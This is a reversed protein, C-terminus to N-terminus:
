RPTDRYAGVYFWLGAKRTRRKKPYLVGHGYANPRVCLDARVYYRLGCQPLAKLEANM